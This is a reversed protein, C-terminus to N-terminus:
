YKGWMYLKGEETIAASSSGGCAIYVVHVNRLAEISLPGSESEPLSSHGLQGHGGHGWSFVKGDDSMALSHYGGTAIQVIHLGDLNPNPKPEWGRNQKRKRAGWNWVQGDKTLAVTFFGGCCVASVPVPLATVKSPISLGGAHDPGRGPGLGLRGEGEERGWTYLEGSETIAATNPAAQPLAASRAQGLGKSWSQCCSGTICEMGSRELGELLGQVRRMLSFVVNFICHSCMVMPISHCCLAIGSRSPARVNAVNESLTPSSFPTRM